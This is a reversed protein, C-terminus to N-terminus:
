LTREAWITSVTLLRRVLRSPSNRFRAYAIGFLNDFYCAFRSRHGIELVHASIHVRRKSM